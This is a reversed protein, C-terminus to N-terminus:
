VRWEPIWRGDLAVVFRSGAHAIWFRGSRDTYTFTVRSRGVDPGAAVSELQGRRWRFLGLDADVIWLGGRRDSALSAIRSLPPDHPVPVPSVRAGSIRFLTGNTAAWVVGEPDAALATIGPIPLRTGGSESAATKGSFRILEETTAVWVDGDPTADVAAILGLTMVPTVRHPTLQSLGEFTGAWINGERGEFLALVRNSPLGTAVTAQEVTADPEAGPRRVRWLGQGLTGVWLSGHRDHLVRSGIGPTRTRRAGMDEGLRAFGVVPDTTWVNGAADGSLGLVDDISTSVPEVRETGESFRFVGTATGVFLAGTEDVFLSLASEGSFGHRPGLKQWRAGDFRFLGATSVAWITHQHDEALGTVSGLAVGDAESFGQAQGDRLRGVGAEDDFGAWLSGDHAVLLARIGVDPFPTTNVAVWPAFRVGDFRVLGDATGLWLYGDDTQAIARVTGPLGDKTAWSTLTYGSLLSDLEAAHAQVALQATLAVGLLLASLMRGM